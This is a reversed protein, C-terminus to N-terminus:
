VFYKWCIISSNLSYDRMSNSNNNTSIIPNFDLSYICTNKAYGYNEDLTYYTTSCACQMNNKNTLHYYYYILPGHFLM